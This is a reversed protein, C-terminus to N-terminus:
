ILASKLFLFSVYIFMDKQDPQHTFVILVSGLFWCFFKIVEYLFAYFCFLGRIYFMFFYVGKNKISTLNVLCWFALRDTLYPM